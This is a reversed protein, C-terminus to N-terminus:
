LFLTLHITDNLNCTEAADLFLTRRFPLANLIIFNFTKSILRASLLELLSLQAELLIAEVLESITFVREQATRQDM